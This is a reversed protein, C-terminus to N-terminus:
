EGERGGVRRTTGAWGGHRAFEVAHRVEGEGDVVCSDLLEHLVVVGHGVRGVVVIFAVIAPRIREGLVGRIREVIFNSNSM